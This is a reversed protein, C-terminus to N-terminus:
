TSHIMIKLCFLVTDLLKQALLESDYKEKRRIGKSQVFGGAIDGGWILLVMLFLCEENLECFNLNPSILRYYNKWDDLTWDKHKKAWQLKINRNKISTEKSVRM